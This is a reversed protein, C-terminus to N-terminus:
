QLKDNTSSPYSKPGVLSCPPRPHSVRNISPHSLLHNCSNDSLTDWQPRPLETTDGAASWGLKGWQLTSRGLLYQRFHSIFEVVALLERRTTCFNQETSSLREVEMLWFERRMGKCKPSSQEPGTDLFFKSSDLPYSLLPVLTLRVKLEEFEKRASPQGTAYKKTLNHLLKAETTFDEIFHQYYSALNVFQHM